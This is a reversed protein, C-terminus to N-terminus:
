MSGDLRGIGTTSIAPLLTASSSVTGLSSSRSREVEIEEFHSQGDAGTYVRTVKM